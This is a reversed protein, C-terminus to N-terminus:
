ENMIYYLNVGPRTRSQIRLERKRGGTTGVDPRCHVNQLWLLGGLHIEQVYFSSPRAIGTAQFGVCCTMLVNEIRGSM